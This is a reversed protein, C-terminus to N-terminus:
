IASEYESLNFENMSNLYDDALFRINENGVGVVKFGGEKAAKVGSASDEFVICEKPSLNMYNSAKEFVEPSPKQKTVMNGDVIVNFYNTLRLKDLIFLANKSSSGIALSINQNKSKVLLDEVGDLIDSKNLNSVSSRYLENKKNLLSNIKTESLSIKALKLIVNLSDRRSIGKLLENEKESFFVGLESAIQKWALFHNKETNVIVGDLDFILGKIM